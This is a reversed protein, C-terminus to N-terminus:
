DGLWSRYRALYVMIEYVQDLGLEKCKVADKLIAEHEERGSVNIFRTKPIEAPPNRGESLPKLEDCQDNM